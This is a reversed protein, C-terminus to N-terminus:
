KKSVMFYIKLLITFFYYAFTMMLLYAAKGETELDYIQWPGALLKQLLFIPETQVNSFFFFLDIKLSM